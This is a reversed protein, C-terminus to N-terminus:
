YIPGQDIALGEVFTCAFRHFVEQSIQPSLCVFLRFFLPSFM